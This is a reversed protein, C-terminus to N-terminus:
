GAAATPQRVGDDPVLSVLRPAVEEMFLRLSAIRDDFTGIDKGIVLLLTGFGGAQEHFQEIRRAVTDPSGIFFLGAELLFPLSLDDITGGEPIWEDYLPSRGGGLSREIPRAGKGAAINARVVLELDGGVERMAQEDTAAVHVFRTATVWSRRRGRGLRESEDSYVDACARMRDPAHTQSLLYRFDHQAAFQIKDPTNSAMAIPPHPQQLPKPWVSIGTGDYYTGHWDFPETETMASIALDINELLMPHSDALAIGRQEYGTIPGGQGIGLMYRGGTLHDIM